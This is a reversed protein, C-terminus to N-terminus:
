GKADPLSAGASDQTDTCNSKTKNKREDERIEKEYDKLYEKFEELRPEEQFSMCCLYFWEMLADYAEM